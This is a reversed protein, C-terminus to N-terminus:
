GQASHTENYWKIFQIVANYTSKIKSGTQHWGFDKIASTTWSRMIRCGNVHIEVGFRLDNDLRLNEIKEVVPMLWDWSNNYKLEEILWGYTTCGKKFLYKMCWEGDHQTSAGMFLAIIENDTVAGAENTKLEKQESKM